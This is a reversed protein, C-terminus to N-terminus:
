GGGEGAARAALRSGTLSNPRWRLADEAEHRAAARDGRALLLEGLLVHLDSNHPDIVLARRYMAEARDGRALLEYARGLDTLLEANAPDLALCREYQPIEGAEPRDPLTECEKAGTGADHLSSVRRFTGVFIALLLIPWVFSVWRERRTTM